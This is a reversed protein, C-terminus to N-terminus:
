ACQERKEQGQHQKDGASQSVRAPGIGIAAVMVAFVAAIVIVVTM